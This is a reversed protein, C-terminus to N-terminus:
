NLRRDKSNPGVGLVIFNCMETLRSLCRDGYRNKIETNTLNTTFHTVAGYKLWIDYRDQIVEAMVNVENGYNKVNAEAGLDNFAMDQNSTLSKLYEYGHLGYEREAHRADHTIFWRLCIANFIKLLLSKGSGVNGKTLLGKELDGNFVPDGNFYYIFNNIVNKNEEDVDYVRKPPM